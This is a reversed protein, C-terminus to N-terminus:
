RAKEIVGVLVWKKHRSVPRCEQIKVTDGQEGLNQEDHVSLKLIRRIFKGYVSHRTRIEIHVVITKDMKNSAISGVLTRINKKDETNNM